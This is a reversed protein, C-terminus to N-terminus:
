CIRASAISADFIYPHSPWANYINSRAQRRTDCLVGSAILGRLLEFEFTEVDIKLILRRAGIGRLYEIADMSRLRLIEEGPPSSANSEDGAAGPMINGGALTPCAPMTSLRHARPPRLRTAGANNVYGIARFSATQGLAFPTAAYLRINRGRLRHSEVARTLRRTFHPSAEFVDACYLRRRRWTEIRGYEGMGHGVDSNHYWQQLSQGTNAGVDVFLRACHHTDNTGSANCHNETAGIMDPECLVPDFSIAHGSAVALLSAFTRVLPSSRM